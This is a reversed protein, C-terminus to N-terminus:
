NSVMYNDSQNRKAPPKCQPSQKRKRSPDTMSDNEDLFRAVEDEEWYTKNLTKTLLCLDTKGLKM